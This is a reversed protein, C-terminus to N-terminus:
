SSVKAQRAANQNRVFRILRQGFTVLLGISIIICSYLPWYDSPNRHVAFVSFLPTDPPADQPGWSAQFLVVGEDRLPENMEIRM